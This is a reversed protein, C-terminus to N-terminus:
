QQNRLLGLIESVAGELHNMRTQLAIINESEMANLSYTPPNPMELWADEEDSIEAVMQTPQSKPKPKPRTVPMQSPETTAEMESREIMLSVFHLLKQHDIKQSTEYTRVFWQLWKAEQNWIEAYPRGLHAKGFTIPSSGMEELSLKKFKELEEPDGKSCSLRCLRESLSMNATRHQHHDISQNRPGLSHFMSMVPKKMAPNEPKAHSSLSAPSAGTEQNSGMVTKTAGTDLIGHTGHSAFLIQEDNALKEAFHVATSPENRSPQQRLLGTESPSAEDIPQDHIEPLMMFELPLTENTPLPEPMTSVTMTPAQSSSSQGATNRPRDPCESKWHSRRGCNRCNSELIRQQLSKRSGKMSDKGKGKFGKSKGKSSVNSPWFGRNKFRDSLRKRANTYANYAQALGEDEQITDQM